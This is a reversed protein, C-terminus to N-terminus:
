KSKKRNEPYIRGAWYGDPCEKVFVSDVGNTYWKRGKISAGIKEKQSEPLIRGTLSESIKSRTAETQYHFYDGEVGHRHSHESKSIVELDEPLWQIYRDVNNHRLDKDKHHLVYGKPVNLLKRTKEYNQRSIKNQEPTLGKISNWGM